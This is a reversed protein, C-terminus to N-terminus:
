VIEPISHAGTGDLLKHILKPPPAPPPTIHFCQQLGRALFDDPPRLSSQLTALIEGSAVKDGVKKHLIFGATYDIEDEMTNRGAGLLMCLRGIERAHIANICGSREANIERRYKPAPYKNPNEIFSVEGEQAQVIEVFKRWATGNDLLNRLRSVGEQLSSVKGALQLMLAGLTLTVKKVDDPGRGRLVEIAESVELWNGVAAGLPQSMDTLLAVTHLNFAAATRILHSALEEAKGASEFIAGNGVKIDLVLADIGEALKKSLISGCILPISPVTATADRLAYIRRDLPCIEETQGILGTGIEEVQKRFRELSFRTKFGPISELKDLTGGTHGLGRGSIMPVYVGAAAVLPALILSIKDGVGGTSHKDVKTGSLCSFDIVRGSDRMVRTLTVTEDFSMRQFYIAMLLAAMQYDPIEGDLYSRMFFIIESETLAHGDRKKQVIDRATM